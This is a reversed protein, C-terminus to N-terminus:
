KQPGKNLEPLNSAMRGFADSSQTQILVGERHSLPSLSILHRRSVSTATHAQAALKVLSDNKRCIEVLRIKGTV